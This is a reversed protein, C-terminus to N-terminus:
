APIAQKQHQCDQERDAGAQQPKVARLEGALGDIGDINGCALHVKRGHEATRPQHDSEINQRANQGVTEVDNHDAHGAPDGLLHAMVNKLIEGGQGDAEKVTKLGAVNDTDDGVIHVRHVLGQGRVKQLEHLADDSDGNGKEHHEGNGRLENDDEQEGNGNHEQKGPPEGPHYPGHEPASAGLQSGQVAEHLFHEGAVPGDPGVAPLIRNKFAKVLLVPFGYVGVGDRFRVSGDGSGGDIEEAINGQGQDADEAGDQKKPPLHTQTVQAAKDLVGPLEGAGDIFHCVNNGLQM